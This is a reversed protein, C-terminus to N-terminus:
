GGFPRFEGKLWVRADTPLNGTEALERAFQLRLEATGDRGTVFTCASQLAAEEESALAVLLAFLRSRRDGERLMVPVAKPLWPARELLSEKMRRRVTTNGEGGEMLEAFQVQLLPPVWDQYGLFWPGNRQDDPKGRDDLNEQSPSMNSDRNVARHWYRQATREAGLRCEAAGALHYEFATPKHGASVAQDFIEKIAESDNLYALGTMATELRDGRNGRPSRLPAAHDRAEAERGLLVLYHIVNVIANLSEPMAGLVRQATELAAPVRGAAWLALSVNNLTAPAEISLHLLIEACRLADTYRERSYWDALEEALVAQEIQEESFGFREINAKAIPEVKALAERYNPTNEDEPWRELFARLTHLVTVPRGLAHASNLLIPYFRPDDPDGALIERSLICASEHRGARNYLMALLSLIPLNDNYDLALAELLEVAAPVDQAATLRSAENIGRAIRLRDKDTYQRTVTGRRVGTEKEPM